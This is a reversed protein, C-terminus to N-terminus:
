ESPKAGHMSNDVKILQTVKSSGHAGLSTGSAPMLNLKLYKPPAVQCSLNSISGGLATFTATIDTSSASPGLPKECSFVVRLTANEFATFAVPGGTAASVPPVPMSFVDVAHAPAPTAHTAAHSATAQSAGGGAFLSDLADLPSTPKIPSPSPAAKGPAPAPAPTASPMSFLSDLAALASPAPQLPSTLGGRSGSASASASASATPYINNPQTYPTGTGSIDGATTNVSSFLADLDLAQKKPVAAPGGAPKHTAGTPAVMLGTGLLDSLDGLLDTTSEVPVEKVKERIMVIDDGALAAADSAAGTAAGARARIVSEELLPMPALLGARHGELGPVKSADAIFTYEVSRAQLELDGSDEYSAIVTRARKLVLPDTFRATLKLLATLIMAKTQSTVYYLHLMKELLRVVQLAHSDTHSAVM